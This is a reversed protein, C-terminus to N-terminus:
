ARRRPHRQRVWGVSRPPAGCLPTTDPTHQEVHWLRFCCPLRWQMLRNPVLPILFPNRQFARKKILMLRCVAQRRLMEGFDPPLLIEDVRKGLADFMRLWPTGARDTADSEEIVKIRAM